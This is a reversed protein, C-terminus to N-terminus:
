EMRNDIMAVDMLLSLAGIPTLTKVQKTGNFNQVLACLLSTVGFSSLRHIFRKAVVGGLCPASICLVCIWSEVFTAILM